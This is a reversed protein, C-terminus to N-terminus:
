AGTVAVIGKETGVFAYPGWLAPTAFRTTPDPLTVSGLDRGDSLSLAHLVGAKPALVFAAGGGVVPSGNVAKAAHWRVTVRGDPGVTVGRVGDTCPLVVTGAAQATGGFGKCVKTTALQGGVGGLSAQRAVYVTPSKGIALVLGGPLLTPGTSGLDVDGANQTRWDAPAFFGALTLTPTLKLIADSHDYAANPDDGGAAGNGVAVYVNGSADIAPGSPNWAGAERATPVTYSVPAGGRVPVGILQGRYAGCDGNRGGFSVYVRGNAAALASRQQMADPSTGAVGLDVNQRVTVAGTKADLAVLEHKPGAEEAVAYVWGTTPDYAPTGTIGVTPSINGCPLTAAPQPTGVSTHWRQAGTTADFAYVSDNETAVIVLGGVVLPQAYVSGDLDHDWGVTLRTPPPTDHSAGTRRADQHYTPVDAAGIAATSASTTTTSPIPATSSPAAGPGSSSCGAAVGVVTLAVAATAAALPLRM